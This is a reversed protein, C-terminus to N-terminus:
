EIYQLYRKAASAISRAILPVNALPVHIKVKKKALYDSCSDPSLNGHKKLITSCMTRLDVQELALCVVPGIGRVVMCSTFPMLIPVGTIFTCKCQKQTEILVNHLLDVDHVAQHRNEPCVPINFYAALSDLGFSPLKKEFRLHYRVHHLSDMVYLLPPMCMGCQSFANQLVPADYRIGNHAIVVVPKQGIEGNTCEALWRCFKGLVLPLDQREMIGDTECRSVANQQAQLSAMPHVYEQFYQETCQSKTSEATCSICKAAIQTLQTTHPQLSNGLWELDLIIRTQPVDHETKWM